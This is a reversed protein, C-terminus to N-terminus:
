CPGCYSGPKAAYAPKTEKTDWFLAVLVWGRRRTVAWRPNAPLAAAARRHAAAEHELGGGVLPQVPRAARAGPAKSAATSAAEYNPTGAMVAPRDMACNSVVTELHPGSTFPLQAAPPWPRFKGLGANARNQLESPPPKTRRPLTMVGPKRLCTMRTHRQQAVHLRTHKPGWAVGHSDAKTSNAPLPNTLLVHAGEEV